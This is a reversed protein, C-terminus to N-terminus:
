RVIAGLVNLPSQGEGIPQGLEMARRLLARAEDIAARLGCGRALDATIAASLTCGTGRTCSTVLRPGAFTHVGAEDVLVDVPDGDLHGGKALVAKAGLARLREAGRILGDVDRPPEPDGLLIALEPANPTILAARPMLRDRLVRVGLEDLLAAGSSSSIVPDVVLPLAPHRELIRAVEAAIAGTALAGTKAAHPTVDDLVVELQARVQAPDLPWVARVGRTAQAIIATIVSLGHVDRAFFARLDGQVGAGGAPDSGAVTLAILPHETM